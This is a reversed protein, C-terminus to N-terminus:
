FWEAKMRGYSGEASRCPERWPPSGPCSPTSSIERVCLKGRLIPTAMVARALGARAAAAKKCGNGFAIVVIISFLELYQGASHLMM